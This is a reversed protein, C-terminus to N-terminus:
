LLILATDKLHLLLSQEQLRDSTSNQFFIDAEM